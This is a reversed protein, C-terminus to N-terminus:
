YEEMYGWFIRSQQTASRSRYVYMNRMYQYWCMFRFVTNGIGTVVHLYHKRNLEWFFVCITHLFVNVFWRDFKSEM